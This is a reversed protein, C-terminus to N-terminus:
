YCQTYRLTTLWRRHHNYYRVSTPISVTRPRTLSIFQMVRGKYEM